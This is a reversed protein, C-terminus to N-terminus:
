GVEKASRCRRIRTVPTPLNGHRWAPNGLRVAIGDLLRQLGFEFLSDLDLDYGGSAPREFVPFRGGALIAQLAPEQSDMWEEGSM